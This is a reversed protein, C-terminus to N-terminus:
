RTFGINQNAERLTYARDEPAKHEVIPARDQQYGDTTVRPATGEQERRKRNWETAARVGDPDGSFTEAKTVRELPSREDSPLAHGADRLENEVASRDIIELQAPATEPATETQVEASM